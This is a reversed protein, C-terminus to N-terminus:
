VGAILEGGAPVAPLEGEGAEQGLLEPRLVRLWDHLMGVVVASIPAQREDAIVRLAQRVDRPVGVNLQVLRMGEPLPKRGRREKDRMM